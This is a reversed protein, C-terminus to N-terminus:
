PLAGLRDGAAAGGGGGIGADVSGERIWAADHLADIATAKGTTPDVKV